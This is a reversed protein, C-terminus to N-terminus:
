MKPHDEERKRDVDGLRLRTERIKESVNAMSGKSM